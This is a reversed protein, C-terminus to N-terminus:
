AIVVTGAIPVTGFLPHTDAFLTKQPGIATNEENFHAKYTAACFNDEHCPHSQYKHNDSTIPITFM